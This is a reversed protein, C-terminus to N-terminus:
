HIKLQAGSHIQEHKKMGSLHTFSKSCIICKYPKESSHIRVHSALTSQQTFSKSCIECKYPKMGTHKRAHETLNSQQPFSKSCINCKYPKEGTHIREHVTLNAQQAFAQSCIFCKFLKGGERTKRQRKVSKYTKSLIPSKGYTTIDPVTVQPTSNTKGSRYTSNLHHKRVHKIFEQVNLFHSKCDPCIFGQSAECCEEKECKVEIKVETKISISNKLDDSSLM